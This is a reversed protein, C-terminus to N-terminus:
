ELTIVKQCVIRALLGCQAYWCLSLTESSLPGYLWTSDVTNYLGDIHSMLLLGGQGIIKKGLLECLLQLRKGDRSIHYCQVLVMVQQYLKQYIDDLIATDSVTDMQQTLEIM